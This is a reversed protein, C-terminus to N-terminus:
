SGFFNSVWEPPEGSAALEDGDILVELANFLTFDALKVIKPEKFDSRFFWVKHDMSTTPSLYESSEDSPAIVIADFFSGNYIWRGPHDYSFKKQNSHETYYDKMKEHMQLDGCQKTIENMEEESMLFKPLPTNETSRIVVPGGIITGSKLSAYINLELEAVKWLEHVLFEFREGEVQEIGFKEGVLQRLTSETAVKSFGSTGDPNVLLIQM